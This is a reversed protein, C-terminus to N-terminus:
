SDFNTEKAIIEDIADKLYKAASKPAVKSPLALAWTVNLNMNRALKYDIGGPASALDIITCERNIYKLNSDDLLTAPITNFIYDMKPLYTNLNDIHISNYGMATIFALDKKSRAECYVNANLGKLMKSLVKGIRGYGMILVNSNSITIESNKIAEYIAGEATSIANLIAIEDIEMLDFYKKGKLKEKIEEKIAGTFLVKNDISNIVEDCSIIEGTINVSDRTFPIPAIIYDADKYESINKGEEIYMKRLKVSRNDTGLICYKKM